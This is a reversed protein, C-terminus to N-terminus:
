QCHNVLWARALLTASVSLVTTGLSMMESTPLPLALCVRLNTCTVIFAAAFKWDAANTGKQKVLHLSQNGKWVLSQITILLLEIAPHCGHMNFLGVDHALRVM